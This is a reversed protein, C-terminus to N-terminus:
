FRFAQLRAKRRAALGQSAGTASWRQGGTGRLIIGCLVLRPWAASSRNFANSPTGGGYSLIFRATTGSASLHTEGGSSPAWCQAPAQRRSGASQTAPARAKAAHSCQPRGVGVGRASERAERRRRGPHQTQLRLVLAALQTVERGAHAPLVLGGHLLQLGLALDLGGSEVVGLLLCCRLALRGCGLSRLRHRRVHQLPLVHTRCRGRNGVGGGDELGVSTEM